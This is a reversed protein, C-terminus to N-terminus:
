LRHVEPHPQRRAPIGMQPRHPLRRRRSGLPRRGLVQTIVAEDSMALAQSLGEYGGQAIYHDIQEPDILGCNAMLRRVQPAFFPLSPLPPVNGLPQEALVALAHAQAVGDVAVAQEILAPVKDATLHHYLVPPRDPRHIEVIPEAYCLGWCGTTMVDAGIGRSAIERRIADLTDGAGVAHSCTSLGIKILPRQPQAFPHWAEDASRRLEEHTPM